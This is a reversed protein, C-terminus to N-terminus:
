AQINNKPTKSRTTKNTNSSRTFAHERQEEMKKKNQRAAKANNDIHIYRTDRRTFFLSFFFFLIFSLLEHLQIVIRVFLSRTRFM